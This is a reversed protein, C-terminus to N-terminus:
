KATEKKENKYSLLCWLVLLGAGICVAADAANFVWKWLNGFLRVDIFDVVYGLLVRDFMNGIGGGVILSLSICLLRPKGKLTCLYVLIALIAVASVTMFIWRHETLLGFSMGPNEIYTLHLVGDLVPVSDGAYPVCSALAPVDAALATAHTFIYDMAWLKTLQDLACVALILILYPAM